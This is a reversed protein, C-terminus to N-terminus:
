VDFDHRQVDTCCPHERLLEIFIDADDLEIVPLRGPVHYQMEDRPTYLLGWEDPEVEPWFGDRLIYSIGGPHMDHLDIM